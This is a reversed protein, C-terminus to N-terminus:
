VTRAVTFASIETIGAEGLVKACEQLTSGTTHVDDVLLISKGRVEQPDRLSFAGNLNNRRTAGDLQTQPVTARHRWLLDPRIKNKWAPFCTKALLLSQNFGRWRLRKRHLPVPLILDPEYFLATVHAQEALAAFTNLGTLNSSFKLQHILSRIPEQYIFLSRVRDFAPANDRCGSCLRNTGASFPAGCCTCLPSAIRSVKSKCTDCLLPPHSSTLQGDCGLCRAPFLLEFFSTLLPHLFRM